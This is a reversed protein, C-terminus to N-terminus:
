KSYNLIKDVGVELIESLKYITLIGTNIKGYEIRQYQGESTGIEFAVQVQSLDKRIRLRDDLQKITVFLLDFYKKFKEM